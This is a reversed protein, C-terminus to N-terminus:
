MALLVRALILKPRRFPNSCLEHGTVRPCIKGLSMTDLLYNNVRYYIPDAIQNRPDNDLRVSVAIPKLWALIINSTHYPTNTLHRRYLPMNAGGLLRDARGAGGSCNEMGEDGSTAHEPIHCYGNPFGIDLLGHQSDVTM